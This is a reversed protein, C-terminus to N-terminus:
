PLTTEEDVIDKFLKDLVVITQEHCWMCIFTVKEDKIDVLVDTGYPFSELGYMYPKCMKCQPLKLRENLALSIVFMRCMGCEKIKDDISRVIDKQRGCYSCEDM